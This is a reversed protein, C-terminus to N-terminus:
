MRPLLRKIESVINTYAEDVNAFDAVTPKQTPLSRLKELGTGTDEYDFRQIRIPIVRRGEGLAQYVLGFWDPANFLNVSVLALMYDSDAWEQQARKLTNEGGEAENVNYIKIRGTLKLINLHRNLMRAAEADEEAFVIIFKPSLATVVPFSGAAPNFDKETLGDILDILRSRIQRKRLDNNETSLIGRIEEDKRNNEDGKLLIVQSKKPASDPLSQLTKDLAMGLNNALLNKLLNKLEALNEM